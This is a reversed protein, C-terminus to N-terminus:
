EEIYAVKAVTVLKTDERIRMLTVGQTNRGMRSIGSIELRIITGESSIMMVEDKDTVVKAGVV